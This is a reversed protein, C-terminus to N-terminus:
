CLKKIEIRREYKIQGLASVHAPCEEGTLKIDLYINFLEAKITDLYISLKFLYDTEQKPRAKGIDWETM